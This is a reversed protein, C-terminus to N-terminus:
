VDVTGDFVHVASGTMRIPSDAGDAVITLSGGPLRVTIPAGSVARGTVVAAVAAACAGTGCAQTWGSGRELVHLVLDPGVLTAFGVNINGSFMAHQALEPGVAYRDDGVADFTVAHPNGMSLTTLSVTRGAVATPREIADVTAGRMTVEVQDRGIRRCRHPGATTQIILDDPHGLGFLHMAVCRIGNGCMEADSGDANQVRMRPESGLDVSLVGDAGIGTHRACLATVTAPDLTPAPSGCVLVFDNGIGHYKVFDLRRRDGMM